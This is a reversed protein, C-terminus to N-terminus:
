DLSDRFVEHLFSCTFWSRFNLSAHVLPHFPFSMEPQHWSNSPPPSIDVIQCPGSYTPSPPWPSLKTTMSSSPYAVLFHWGLPHWLYPYVKFSEVPQLKFTMLPALASIWCPWATPERPLAWIGPLLLRSSLGPAHLHPSPFLDSRRCRFPEMQQTHKENLLNIFVNAIISTWLPGETNVSAPGDSLCSIGYRSWFYQKLSVGNM